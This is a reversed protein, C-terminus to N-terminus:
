KDGHYDEKHCKKCLSILEFLHENGLHKYTLHHVEEAPKNCIQCVFGDRKMIIDRLVYWEPSVIYKEYRLRFSNDDQRLKQVFEYFPKEQNAIYTKYKEFDGTKFPPKYDSQKRAKPDIYYCNKCVIRLQTSGGSITMLIPILEHECEKDEIRYGHCTPCVYVTKNFFHTIKIDTGCDCFNIM